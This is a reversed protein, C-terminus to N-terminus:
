RWRRHHAGGRLLRLRGIVDDAAEGLRRLLDVVDDLEDLAYGSLGVQEREVGRDFGRAGARGALAKGDDSGFDFRKRHLGAFCGVHDGRLDCRHLRRRLAGNAGDAANGAAHFCIRCNVEAIAVETSCCFAAVLSIESLTAAAAAPVFDTTATSCRTEPAIASM